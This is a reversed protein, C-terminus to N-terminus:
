EMLFAEIPESSMENLFPIMETNKQNQFAEKDIPEAIKIGSYIGAVLLLSFFAPQLVKVFFPQWFAIKTKQQKEIKAKLRTYFFPNVEMLKETEIIGLTKKLDAAFNKCEICDNLHNKITNMEKESLEGELFFILKKHLNKCQM